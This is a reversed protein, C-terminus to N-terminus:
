LLFYIRLRKRCVTIEKETPHGRLYKAKNLDGTVRWKKINLRSAINYLCNTVNLISHLPSLTHRIAKEKMAFNGNDFNNLDNMESPKSDCCSCTAYSSTDTLVKIIAGDVMSLHYDPIVKMEQGSELDIILSDLYEIQNQIRDHVDKICENTEKQYSMEITRNWLQSGPTPNRWCFVVEQNERMVKLEQPAMSAIFLRSDDIKNGTVGGQHYQAQGTSGDEGWTNTIIATLKETPPIQKEQLVKSLSEDIINVIRISTHDTLDQVAISAHTDSVEIEPIYRKKFESVRRYSTFIDAGCEKAVERIANYTKVSFNHRLILILANLPDIKRLPKKSTLEMFEDEKNQSKFVMLRKIMNHTKMQQTQKAIKATIKLSAELSKIEAAKDSVFQRKGRDKSNEYRNEEIRPRGVSKPASTTPQMPEPAVLDVMNVDQFRNDLTGCFLDDDLEFDEDMIKMINMVKSFKKNGVSIKNKAREIDIKLNQLRRIIKARGDESVVKMLTTQIFLICELPGETKNNHFLINCLKEKKIPM